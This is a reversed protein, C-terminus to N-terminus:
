GTPPLESCGLSDSPTPDIGQETPGPCPPPPGNQYRWRVLYVIDPISIVGDDNVDAGDMCPPVHTGSVVYGRIWDLDNDASELEVVGDGNADGRLFCAEASAPPSPACDDIPPPASTADPLEHAAPVPPDSGPDLVTSSDPPQPAEGTEEQAAADLEEIWRVALEDETPEPFELESPDPVNFEADASEGAMDDADAAVVEEGEESEPSEEALQGVAAAYFGQMPAMLACVGHVVSVTRDQTAPIVSGIPMVLELRVPPTGLNDRFRITLTQSPTNQPVKVKIKIVIQSIGEPMVADLTDDLLIGVTVGGTVAQVGSFWPDGGIMQQLHTGNFTASVFELPAPLELGFSLAYLARSPDPPPPPVPYRTHDCVVSIETTCNPGDYLTPIPLMRLRYLDAAM